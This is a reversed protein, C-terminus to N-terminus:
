GRRVRSINIPKIGTMGFEGGDPCAAKIGGRDLEIMAYMQVCIEQPRVPRHLKTAAIAM